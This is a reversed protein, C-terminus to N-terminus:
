ATEEKAYESAEVLKLYTQASEFKHFDYHHIAKLVKSVGDEDLENRLWAIFNKCSESSLFVDDFMSSKIAQEPAM